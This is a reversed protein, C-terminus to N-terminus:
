DGRRRSGISTSLHAPVRARDGQIDQLLARTSVRVSSTPTQSAAALLDEAGRWDLPDAVPDGMELVDEGLLGHLRSLSETIHEALDAQLRHGEVDAPREAAGDRREVRECKDFRGGALCSPPRNSNV